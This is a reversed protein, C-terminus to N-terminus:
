VEDIITQCFTTVGEFYPLKSPIWENFKLHKKEGVQKSKFLFIIVKELTWWKIQWPGDIPPLSCISFERIFWWHNWKGWGSMVQDNVATDDLINQHIDRGRYSGFLLTQVATKGFTMDFGYIMAQLDHLMWWWYIMREALWAHHNHMEDVYLWRMYTFLSVCTCWRYIYIYTYIMWIELTDGLLSMWWIQFFLRDWTAFRPSSMTDKRAFSSLM